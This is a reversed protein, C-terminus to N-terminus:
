KRGNASTKKLMGTNTAIRQLIAPDEKRAIDYQDFLDELISPM